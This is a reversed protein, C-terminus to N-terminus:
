LAHKGKSTEGKHQVLVAPLPVFTMTTATVVGRQVTNAYLWGGPVRLRTTEDYSRPRNDVTVVHEWGHKGNGEYSQKKAM